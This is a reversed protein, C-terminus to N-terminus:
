STNLNAPTSQVPPAQDSTLTVPPNFYSTPVGPVPSQSVEVVITCSGSASVTGGTLSIVGTGPVAVLAGLCSNAILPMMTHVQLGSPLTDTFTLGTLAVPANNTITFFLFTTNGNPIALPDFRKDFTPAPATGVVLNVPASQVAPAENSTLTVAPNIYSGPTNAVVQVTITCSAGASVAGNTLSITGGGAVVSLVGGCTNTFVPGPAIVLGAPLNDTFALGTLNVSGTGTNNITFRLTTSVGAVVPNTLFTKAFTPAPIPTPTPPTPAPAVISPTANPTPVPPPITPASVPQPISTSPQSTSPQAPTVPSSGVGTGSSPPTPNQVEIIPGPLFSTLNKDKAQQCGVIAFGLFIATISSTALLWPKNM